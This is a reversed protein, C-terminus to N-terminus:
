SELLANKRDILRAMNPMSALVMYVTQLHGQRHLADLGEASLESLKEENITYLGSLNHKSGDRFEIQVGVSEILELGVLIKSLSTSAEQSEHITMLISSARELLPAEGGHTLFVPEGDTNSVSPHDLDIHVVPVSQPMGDHVQEQFGILFPQRSITMPIYAADWQGNKLYLNEGESFGLLAIAEFHGTESSKIFFIPYEMQLQPIEVPYVRASNADFGHGPEYVANVRLDAHNVNDLMAHNTM